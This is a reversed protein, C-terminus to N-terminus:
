GRTGGVRVGSANRHVEVHENKDEEDDEGDDKDEETELKRAFHRRHVQEDQVQDDEPDREEGEEIRDDRNGPGRRGIDSGERDAAEPPRGLRRPAYGPGPTRTESPPEQEGAHDDTDAPRDQRIQLAEPGHDRIRTGRARGGSGNIVASDEYLTRRIDTLCPIPRWRPPAATPGCWAPSPIFFNAVSSRPLVTM